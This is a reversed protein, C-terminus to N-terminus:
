ISPQPHARPPVYPWRLINSHVCVYAPVGAITRCRLYQSISRHNGDIIILPGAKAETSVIELELGACVRLDITDFSAVRRESAASPLADRLRCTRGETLAAFDNLAYLRDVDIHELLARFCTFEGLPCHQDMGYGGLRVNASVKEEHRQVESTEVNALIMMRPIRLECETAFDVPVTSLWRRWRFRVTARAVAYMVPYHSVDGMGGRFGAGIGACGFDGRKEREGSSWTRWIAAMRARPTRRILFALTAM